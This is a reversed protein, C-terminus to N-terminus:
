ICGKMVLTGVVLSATMLPGYLLITSFSCLMSKMFRVISDTFGVKSSFLLPNVKKLDGETMKAIRKYEDRFIREKFLYSSDIIWFLLLVPACLIIMLKPTPNVTAFITLFASCILISFEKCKFSAERMSIIINEIYDLAKEQKTTM